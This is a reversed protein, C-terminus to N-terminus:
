GLYQKLTTIVVGFDVPKAIHGNMGAALCQEVDEKFVNATMAIIPVQKAESHEAEYARILKASDYGNVGPMHIDMFILDLTEANARFLDYAKQGDEAELIEMGLPELLTIVIERNIEVDEALLVRKGTYDPMEEFASEDTEPTTKECSAPIKARINFIFSAGKGVESEIRIEGQMLEVIKRSISLGLGTGGYRRAISSDIQVFSQFLKGQQEKPIGIGTDTVNFELNYFFEEQEDGPTDELRRITLSINGLDPTFKIANSILNTIVQALRQEDSIIRVPIDPDLNLTLKQHKENLRFEFIGSVREIMTIFEFETNSLEFKNEEIKSMDLVDNIIGLLHVSASEIKDLCYDKRETDSARAITTMGIIANLPTRIEHSMNALFNSKAKSAQEIRKKAEIINTMDQFLIFSGMFSGNNSYMPSFHIEYHRLYGDNSFDISREFTISKGSEKSTRFFTILESLQETNMFRSFIERYSVKRIEDFSEIGTKDLFVRACYTMQIDKDLLMIIDPSIDFIKQLYSDKQVLWRDKISRVYEYIATLILVLFYVSCLLIAEPLHFDFRTFGTTFTGFVVVFFLASAPFLGVPLGLTYISMLPFSYIWIADLGNMEYKGFISFACFCGFIATVILGGAMFPLETRLLFLNLFIMFGLILQILGIDIKGSQMDSVGLSIIIVSAITYTINLVILRLMAEMDKEDKLAQYKGSTLISILRDKFQKM